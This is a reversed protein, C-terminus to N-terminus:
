SSGSINSMQTLESRDMSGRFKKRLEMIVKRKAVFIIFIFVGQLSSAAYIIYWKTGKRQFFISLVTLLYPIGMILFLKISIVFKEKYVIFRETRSDTRNFKHLESKIRLSHISTLLFLILNATLMVFVPILIFILGGFGSMHYYFCGFEGFDPALQQLSKDQSYQFFLGTCVFISSLGWCYFHYIITRLSTSTNRNISINNRIMWYIDFSIVNLWCLTSLFLFSTSYGFLICTHGERNEMIIQAIVFIYSLLQHSMYCKVYYNRINRLSPLINYVLLTLALCVTSAVYSARYFLPISSERVRPIEFVTDIDCIFAVIKDAVPSYEVCYETGPIVQFEGNLFLTGDTTLLFGHSVMGRGLCKFDLYYPLVPIFSSAFMTLDQNAKVPHIKFEYQNTSQKCEPGNPGDVIMQDGKCCKHVCMYTGQDCIQDRPRCARAVLWSPQPLDFCYSPPLEAVSSYAKILSRVKDNPVDVLVHGADCLPPEYNFGVIVADAVARSTNRLLRRMDRQLAQRHGQRGMPM